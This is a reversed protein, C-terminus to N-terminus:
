GEPGLALLDTLAAKILYALMLPAIGILVSGSLGAYFGCPLFDYLSGIFLLQIGLVAVVGLIFVLAAAGMIEPRGKRELRV